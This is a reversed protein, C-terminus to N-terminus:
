QFKEARKILQELNPEDLNWPTGPHIIIATCKEASRVIDEFTGKTPDIVIAKKEENYQFISPAIDVCEDCTTCDPTEIWVPEHATKIKEDTKKAVPEAKPKEVPKPKQEEIKPKEKTEPSMSSKASVAPVESLIRTLASADGGVMSMLGETITQAMEAKAQDAIAQTDIEVRSDGSLGKLTHWFDKQEQTTKVIAESVVVKLLQNSQPHAAWIFPINNAQGHSDMELYETLLVMNNSNANASVAKFHQAFTSETLAWDAYTLPVDMSFKNGYEDTYDLSYTIWDQDIDPNGLLSICEEWSKGLRPDFTMLPYARSEVAIRSQLTLSNNAMGNEPQSSAYISWLAPGRYNLGDIFGALCHTSNSLSSQHVYTTRHAMTILGLEKRLSGVNESPQNDLVLVKIPLGSMLCSSLSQLGSNFSTGESSLTVLPPCLLYEEESFQHWDFHAFFSDHESKDYKGKIELEATRIAKFGEAMKVMHGEFLGMALSPADQTLHRAWPFPYPNFPFTATWATDSRSGSTIGLSARGEGSLGQKYSWRLQKLKEVLQLAWRLWKPDIPQTARDKDLTGTLRSLTLDVNQNQDIATELADIDSIDVTEVLKLRIHKELETILQDIQKSHKEIRPQMLATVTSSFLHIATKEGSGARTNDSNQMTNHNEKDLLLTNLVGNKAQLDDIRSYKKNSTPLDLWYAWNDRLTQISEPTQEVITLADTECVSVCEMCGKCSNPNITISFLGGNRPMHSNMDDHYPETLAFKYSGIKEKFWKFEQTIEEQDPEPYEKITDGIAKAFIPDLTTGVSKGVTLEHYKKEVTRIARRLHKVIHGSKEIRKINTEFVESVTNILGPIASDPCSTYCNGCATCNEPIWKPHQLRNTTMDGFIGTAAPVVGLAAFPGVLNEKTFNKNSYQSGTQNWFRHINAIASENAPKQQLLLPAPPTEIQISSTTDGVNMEAVIIEQLSNYSRQILDLNNGIFSQVQEENKDSDKIIDTTKFFASKFILHQFEFSSNINSKQQDLENQALNAADIFFISINKNSLIKQASAPFSHWVDIAESYQSQIIFVGNEALGALPNSHSFVNPNLALVTNVTNYEDNLHFPKSATTLYFTTPQGKKETEFFPKAKVELNFHEFLTQALDQGLLNNKWGGLSHIRVTKADDPLLIPNENRSLTLHNIEPYAEIISHHQIEQQPSLNKNSIFNIGLYAFKYQKAEPLMNDVAGIIDSVKINHGGLGFCASYLPSIDTTKSYSAYNAYAEKKTRGNDIAKNICSRIETIIPLDEAMPQDTRELVLVGKKGKVIHSLLDGPFPRFVTLDVVGVKLKRSSRLYDATMKANNIISGQAIILYDADKCFYQNIRHYRRGTLEFWEDMCQDTIKSVHDFFYPRQGAVTQMYSDPNQHAGTQTPQDISWTEPVRRRTKGFLISQAPTPTTIIDDPLGVFKEILEREPLNLPEILDTTLFGDQAVAVPNLSLEAIKRGILNLDAASQNNHAFFQIFGTDGMSHYDDHSCHRNSTAKTSATCVINLVFPLRKGVTAYLSEHMSAISHTSSSFHTARLGSLSLGATATLATSASESDISILIRNSINLHGRNKEQKWLTSMESASSTLYVSAADSSERECLVVASIGNMIKRIGPYKPIKDQKKKGFLAM